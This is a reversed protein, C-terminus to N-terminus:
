TKIKSKKATFYVVKASDLNNMKKLITDICPFIYKTSPKVFKPNSGIRPITYYSPVIIGLDLGSQQILESITQWKNMRCYEVTTDNSFGFGGANAINFIFIGDDRLVRKVEKFIKLKDSDQIVHVLVDNSIICNMSQDDFPLEYANCVHIEDYGREKAKMAREKSIDIGIIKKFGFKKYDDYWTGISCGLDLVKDYNLNSFKLLLSKVTAVEQKHYYGNMLRDTENNHIEHTTGIIDIHDYETGVKTLLM